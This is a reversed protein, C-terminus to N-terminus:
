KGFYYSASIMGFMDNQKGSVLNIGNKFMREGISGDISFRNFHFGLGATITQTPDSVSTGKSTWTTTTNVQELKTSSVSRQYGLRGTLWDTFPWEIGMNIKPLVFETQTQKYAGPLTQNYEFSRYGFSLGGALLGNDLVPMNIGLGGMFTMHKMTPNSSGALAQPLPNWNFMAFNLYPVLSIGLPKSVTFFARTYVDMSLGGENEDLTNTGGITRDYKYKHTKVDVAGEIWGGELKSLVGVTGGLVNSSWKQTLNTSDYESSWGAFYPAVGLAFKPSAQWGFTFKLPVVPRQIGYTNNGYNTFDSWNDEFKNAVIGLSIEKSVGFNAAGFQESLQYQDTGVESRGIDGFAYNRYVTTWAPNRNIDISADKIFPNYGLAEYRGTGSPISQGYSVSTLLMVAFLVVSLLKAFKM